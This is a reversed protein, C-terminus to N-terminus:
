LFKKELKGFWSKEMLNKAFKMQFKYEHNILPMCFTTINGEFIEPKYSYLSFIKIKNIKIESQNNILKKKKEQADM